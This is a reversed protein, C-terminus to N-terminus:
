IIHFYKAYFYVPRILYIDGNASLVQLDPPLFLNGVETIMVIFSRIQPGIFGYFIYLIYQLDHNAAYSREIPRVFPNAVVLIRNKM